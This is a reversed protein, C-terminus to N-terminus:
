EKVHRIHGGQGPAHKLATILDFELTVKSKAFCKRGVLRGSSVYDYETRLGNPLRVADRWCEGNRSCAPVGASCTEAKQALWVGCAREKHEM